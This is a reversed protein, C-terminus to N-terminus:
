AHRRVADHKGCRYKGIKIGRGVWAVTEIIESTRLIAENSENLHNRIHGQETGCISAPRLSVRDGRILTGDCVKTEKSLLVPLDDFAEQFPPNFGSRLRFRRVVVLDELLKAVKISRAHVLLLEISTSDLWEQLNDFLDM